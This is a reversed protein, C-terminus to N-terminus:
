RGIEIISLKKFTPPLLEKTLLNSTNWEELYKIFTNKNLIPYELSGFMLNITKKIIDKEIEIKGEEYLRMINILWKTIPHNENILIKDIVKINIGFLDDKKLNCFEVDIKDSFLEILKITKEMNNKLHWDIILAGELSWRIDKIHFKKFLEGRYNWYINLYESLIINIEKNDFKINKILSDKHYYEYFDCILTIINANIFDNISLLLPVDQKYGLITGSINSWFDFSKYDQILKNKYIWGIDSNARPSEGLHETILEEIKKNPAELLKENFDIRRNLPLDLIKKRYDVRYHFNNGIIEERYFKSSNFNIGNICILNTPLVPPKAMPHTNPYTENVWKWLDWREDKEKTYSFIYIEGDIGDERIPYSKVSMIAKPETVDSISYVFDETKESLITSTEGLININIPFEVRKCWNKILMILKEKSVKTKLIASIKTGNIQRECREITIYNRPGTLALKIPGIKKESTPKYTEIVVNDCEAFVSLFGLGFRSSPYFPFKKEFDDSTYYSRGVQLLFNEIIDRDMGIGLDEITLIQCTENEGSIENYIKDEKLVINIPYRNRITKDILNPYKPLNEEQKIDLYIQCRTADLSNQILERVFSLEEQYVDKILRQFIIEEDLIFKWKIPIYKADARPRIVITSYEDGITAIPIVWNSHRSASSMLSRAEKIEDVIWQCWDTLYRHEDQNQCEAKIEIKDPATLRHTIRQYKTWRALSDSPLPCAANLLLPCARDFAMDLLDGLRLLIALFRVNVTDDFIDRREPYKEDNKLEFPRLGHAICVDQITKFLVPSEFSFGSLQAENQIIVNTVREPHTRRIFDSLLYRIQINALFDIQTKEIDKPPNKIFENILNWRKQGAEGESIFKKWEESGLIITKEKDSTVMGSDHLYSAIILIYAETPSLDIIPNEPDNNIFILKSIQLIIEESHDITHSTYHPFTQPIYTLWKEIKEKLELVKGYYKQDKKELFAFLATQTVDM